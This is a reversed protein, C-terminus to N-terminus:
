QQALRAKEARFAEASIGLQRCVESEGPGPGGKDDAVKFTEGTPVVKLATKVYAAFGEPSEQAYKLAWDKLAPTIKGDKMAAAVAEQAERDRIKNKLATLEAEVQATRDTGQKLALVAGQIEAIKAEKALGLVECIPALDLPQLLRQNVLALVEEETAEAKLGLKEILKVLMTKEKQASIEVGQGRALRAIRAGIEDREEATYQRQNKPMNWYSWAARANEPTHCPYRYNVPDGWESDPVEAWEGPKTVHGSEKIAIGYRRSRAEKADDAMVVTELEEGDKAALPTLRSIAPFNTLAAHMLEKPRRGEDLTLVPSFYRYEKQRIHEQAAPTWEVRGWLGDERAELEKIWGAAPARDGTLTQHEYDIVLDNGRERWAGIIAELSQPTVTFPQRGDSLRVEGLPLLRIWEPAEAASLFFVIKDM